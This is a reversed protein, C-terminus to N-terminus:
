VCHTHTQRWLMYLVACVGVFKLSPWLHQLHFAAHRLPLFSRLGRQLQRGCTHGKGGRADRGGSMGEHKFNWFIDSPFLLRQVKERVEETQIGICLHKSPSTISATPLSCQNSLVKIQMSDCQRGTLGVSRATITNCQQM